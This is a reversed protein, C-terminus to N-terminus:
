SPQHTDHSRKLRAASRLRQWRVVVQFLLWLAVASFAWDLAFAAPRFDDEVFALQNEVSVGPADFLYAVPFGGKLWPRTCPEMATAGCLNGYQVREPGRREIFSSLLAVLMSLLVLALLGSLSRSRPNSPFARSNRVISM